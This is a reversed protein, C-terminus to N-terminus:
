ISKNIPVIITMGAYLEDASIDNLQCLQYVSKRIDNSDSMYKEAISWLTDGYSIKVEDYETITQSNATDLGLILNASITILIFAAVVFFTFRFRNKIRYTKTM